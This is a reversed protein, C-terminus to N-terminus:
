GTCVLSALTQITRKRRVCKSIAYYSSHKDGAM